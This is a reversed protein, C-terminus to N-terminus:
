DATPASPNVPITAANDLALSADIWISLYRGYCEVVPNDNTREMVTFVPALSYQRIGRDLWRPLAKKNILYVQPGISLLFLIPSSVLVGVWFWRSRDALWTLPGRRKKPQEDM